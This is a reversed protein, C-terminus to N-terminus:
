EEDSVESQRPTCVYKYMKTFTECRVGEGCEWYVQSDAFYITRRALAREQLVWGRQNLAGDIVDRQFNDIDEAIFIPPGSPIPVTVAERQPREVLFGDSVDAARSAAIVCYAGSFVTEMREAETEYDGGPGQVICLADIWIFQMGIERAVEIANQLVLPLSALAVGNEKEALNERTTQYNLYQSAYGWRYSVAAYKVVSEPHIVRVMSSSHAGIEVLRTPLETQVVVHLDPHRDCRAHNRDCDYLWQRLTESVASSRIGFLQPSSIQIADHHREFM